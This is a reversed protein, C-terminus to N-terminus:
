RQHGYRTQMCSIVSRWDGETLEKHAMLMTLLFYMLDDELWRQLGAFQNMSDIQDSSFRGASRVLAPVGHDMWQNLDQSRAVKAIKSNAPDNWRNMFWQSIDWAIQYAQMLSLKSKAYANNPHRSSFSKTEQILSTTATWDIEGGNRAVDDARDLKTALSGLESRDDTPSRGASMGSSGGAAGGTSSGCVHCFRAEATLLANGCASCFRSAM